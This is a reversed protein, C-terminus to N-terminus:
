ASPTEWVRLAVSVTTAGRDAFWTVGEHVLDVDLRYSGPALPATVQMPVVVEADPYVCEPLPTRANDFAVLDSGQRM